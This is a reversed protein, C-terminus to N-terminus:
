DESPALRANSPSSSWAERHWDSGLALGVASWFLLGGGGPGLLVNASPMMALVAVAVALAATPVLDPHRSSATGAQAARVSRLTGLLALLIGAAFLGGGPWGLVYPVNAIGNDFDTTKGETLKTATGASGLGNGVPNLFAQAGVGDLFMLREQFSHDETINSMSHFRGGILDAFPGAVSLAVVLVGAAAVGAIYRSRQGQPARWILVLAGVFGGLWATRVGSLLLGVCGLAVAVWKLRGAMRGSGLLFLLAGATVIGYPGPSNLTSFVRVNFPEPTGISTMESNVMWFGDWPPAFLFQVIGYAGMLLTGWALTRILSTRFAPYQRWHVAIFGGFVIPVAWNLMDFSAAPLGVRMLGVGFGYVVGGLALTFPLLARSQLFRWHRALVIVALGLVLYPALMIPSATNYAGGVWDVVRRLEPSLLCVWLAFAVYTAPFKQLLVFGVAVVGAPYLWEMLGARGTAFLLSVLVVAILGTGIALQQNRASVAPHRLGGSAVSLSAVEFTTM